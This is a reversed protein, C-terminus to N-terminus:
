GGHSIPIIRIEMNETLKNELKGTTRLEIKGSILLFGPRIDGDKVLYSYVEPYQELLQIIANKLSLNDSINFTRDIMKNKVPMSQHLNVKLIIKENM